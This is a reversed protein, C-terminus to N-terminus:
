FKSIKGNDDKVKPPSTHDHESTFGSFLGMFTYLFCFGQFSGLKLAFCAQAEPATATVRLVSRWTLGVRSRASQSAGVEASM